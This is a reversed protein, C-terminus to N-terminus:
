RGAPPAPFYREPGLPAPPGYARPQAPAPPAICGAARGAPRFRSPWETPGFQAVPQNPLQASARYYGKQLGFPRAHSAAPAPSSPAFDLDFLDAVRPYRRADASPQAHGSAAVLLLCAAAGLCRATPFPIPQPFIIATSLATRLNGARRSFRCSWGACQTLLPLPRVKRGGPGNQGANQDGSKV